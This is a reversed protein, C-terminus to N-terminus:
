GLMGPDLVFPQAVALAIPGGDERCATSVAANAIPLLDPECGVQSQGAELCSQCCRRRAALVRM